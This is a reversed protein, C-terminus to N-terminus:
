AIPNAIVVLRLPGGPLLADFPYCTVLILQDQFVPVSLIQSTINVIKRTGVVYRITAGEINEVELQTGIDATKLFQFHTDRHGSILSTGPYGPMATGSLLGPGFALSSGTAGQLVIFSLDGGPVRLRAVPWTDAWPWPKSPQGTRLSREFADHLLVQALWAKTKITAGQSIQWIGLGISIVAVLLLANCKRM